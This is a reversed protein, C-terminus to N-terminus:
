NKLVSGDEFIIATVEFDLKINQYNEERLRKVKEYLRYKPDYNSYKIRYEPIGLPSYMVGSGNENPSELTIPSDFELEDTEVILDEYKDLILVKFKFQKIGRSDEHLKHRVHSFQIPMVSTFPYEAEEFRKLNLTEISVYDGIEANRLILAKRENIFKELAPNEYKIFADYITSDPLHTKYSFMLNNSDNIWIIKRSTLISNRFLGKIGKNKKSKTKEFLDISKSIYEMDEELLFNYEASDYLSEFKHLVTNIDNISIQYEESGYESKGTDSVLNFKISFVKDFDYKGSNIEIFGSLGDKEIKRITDGENIEYSYDAYKFLLSDVQKKTYDGEVLNELKM